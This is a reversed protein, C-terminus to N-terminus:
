INHIINHICIIYVYIQRYINHKATTFAMHASQQYSPTLVPHRNTSQQLSNIRIHTSLSHTPSPSPPCPSPLALLGSHRQCCSSLTIRSPPQQLETGDMMTVSCWCCPDTVVVGLGACFWGCSQYLDSTFTEALYLSDCFLPWELPSYFPPFVQREIKHNKLM